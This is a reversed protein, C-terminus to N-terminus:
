GLGQASGFPLSWQIPKQKQVQKSGFARGYGLGPRLGPNRIGCFESPQIGSM